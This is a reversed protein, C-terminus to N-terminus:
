VLPNATRTSYQKYTCAAASCYEVIMDDLKEISAQRSRM